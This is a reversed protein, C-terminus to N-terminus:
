PGATDPTQALTDLSEETPSPMRGARVQAIRLVSRGMGADSLVIPVSERLQFGILGLPVIRTAGAINDALARRV